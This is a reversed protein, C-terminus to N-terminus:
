VQPLININYAFGLKMNILTLNLGTRNKEPILVWLHKMNILTLNLRSFSTVVSHALYLKMNILTLNLCDKVREEELLKEHQKM